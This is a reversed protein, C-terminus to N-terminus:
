LGLYHLLADQLQPTVVFSGSENEGFQARWRTISRLPDPNKNLLCHQFCKLRSMWMSGMDFTTYIDQITSFSIMMTPEYYFLSLGLCLCRSDQAPKELDWFASVFKALNHARHQMKRLCKGRHCSHPKDMLGNIRDLSPGHEAHRM